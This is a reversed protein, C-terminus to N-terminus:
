WVNKIFPGQTAPSRGMINRKLKDLKKLSSALLCVSLCVFVCVPLCPHICLM